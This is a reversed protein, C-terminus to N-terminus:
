ANEYINLGRFDVSTYKTYWGYRTATFNRDKCEQILEPSAHFINIEASADHLDLEYYLVNAMHEAASMIELIISKKTEM